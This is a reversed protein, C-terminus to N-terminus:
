IDLKTEHVMVIEDIDINSDYKEVDGTTIAQEYAEEVTHGSAVLQAIHDKDVLYCSEIDILATARVTKTFNIMNSISM